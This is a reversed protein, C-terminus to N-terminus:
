EIPNLIRTNDVFMRIVKSTLDHEYLYGPFSARVNELAVGEHGCLKMYEDFANILENSSYPKYDEKVCVYKFQSLRDNIFYQELQNYREQKLHTVVSKPLNYKRNKVNAKCNTLDVNRWELDVLDEPTIETLLLMYLIIQFPTNERYSFLRCYDGIDLNLIKTTNEAM